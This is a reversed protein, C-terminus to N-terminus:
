KKYRVSQREVIEVDIKIPSSTFQEQNLMSLILNAAAEAKASINQNITTLKPYSYNCTSINDFGIVSIDEPVQVGNLRLGEIIGLAIIDATAFIASIEEIHNSIDKGIRIGCEYSVNSSFLLNKDISLHKEQLAKCYGNFREQMVGSTTIDPSVFAIRTHNNNLLYRTAIYGGKFDDSGVNTISLNSVYTDLFVTPLHNRKLIEKVDNAFMGLFIAGDVNWMQLISSVEQYNSVCRFMLYYNNKRIIREIVGLVEANYPSQLFNSTDDVNPIIVGIIKSTKMALTRASANPIYNYKKILANVKEITTASVKKYNGNIVNSVTVTSVEAEKAIDKLTTM